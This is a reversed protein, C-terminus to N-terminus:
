IITSPINIEIIGSPYKAINGNPLEGWPLCVPAVHVGSGIEFMTYAPKPLRVLAIDNGNEKLKGRDWGEHIKADEDTMYFRQVPKNPCNLKGNLKVCDPNTALNHDGLVVEAFSKPKSGKDFCHAATIVYRRNILSGGCDYFVRNKSNM